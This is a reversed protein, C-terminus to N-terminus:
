RESLVPDLMTLYYGGQDYLHIVDGTHRLIFSKPNFSTTANQFDSIIFGYDENWNLKEDYAYTFTSGKPISIGEYSGSMSGTNEGLFTIKLTTNSAYPDSCVFYEVDNTLYDDAKDVEIPNLIKIKDRFRIWGTSDKIVLITEGPAVGTVSFTGNELATVSMVSPNSSVVTAKKTDDDAFSFNLPYTEGVALAYGMRTDTFPDGLSIKENIEDSANWSVNQFSAASSSSSFFSSSAIPKEQCSVLLFAVVLPYLFYHKRM